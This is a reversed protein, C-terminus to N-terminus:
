GEYKILLPKKAVSVVDGLIHVASIPHNLICYIDPIVLLCLLKM